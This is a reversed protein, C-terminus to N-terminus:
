RGGEMYFCWWWGGVTAERRERGEETKVADLDILGVLVGVVLVVGIYLELGKEEVMLIASPATWLRLDYAKM